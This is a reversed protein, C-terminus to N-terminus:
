DVNNIHARSNNDVRNKELNTLQADMRALLQEIRPLCTTVARVQHVNELGAPSTMFNNSLQDYLTKLDNYGTKLEDTQHTLDYIWKNLQEKTM